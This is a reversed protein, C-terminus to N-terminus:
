LFYARIKVFEMKVYAYRTRTMNSQPSCPVGGSMYVCCCQTWERRSTRPEEQLLVYSRSSTQGARVQDRLHFSQHVHITVTTSNLNQDLIWSRLRVNRILHQQQQPTNGHVTIQVQPPLSLCQNTPQNILQNISQSVSQSVSHTLSHRVYKSQSISQKSSQNISQNVSQQFVEFEGAFQHVHLHVRVVAVLLLLRPHSQQPRSVSFLLTVCSCRYPQVVLDVWGQMGGPDSLRTGAEAPTLAPIDGRGPPLYCQTIGHPM